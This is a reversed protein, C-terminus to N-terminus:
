QVNIMRRIRMLTLRNRVYPSYGLLDALRDASVGIDEVTRKADLTELVSFLHEATPICKIIGRIQPWCEILREKSVASLCDESNERLIAEALEGGFFRRIEETPLPIYDVTLASIDRAEALRHYEAATLVAGVGAKEGHMAPFAAKLMAPEEEILHSIHHEAGSAPRSSGHMQMALGSMLLAYVVKEYAQDEGALIGPVSAVATDAAAKVIDFIRPCLDEGTLLKSIRWDTLATYKALIDGIGSKVLRAPAIKIIDTDAVVLAPAAAPITKKFGRWTMAAVKSCFGDVSAATPVSVFAIGREYACFRAIDHITGGGVAILIETQPEMRILVAATAKEDAHLGKPNLVIEQEAKPRRGAAAEYSNGGYLACRRGAPGYASMYEEFQDLAGREIVAARTEMAHERGCACKGGYMAGDILM